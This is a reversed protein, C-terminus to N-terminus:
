VGDAQALSSSHLHTMCSSLLMLETGCTRLLCAGVTSSSDTLILSVMSTPIAVSSPKGNGRVSRFGLRLYIHHFTDGM